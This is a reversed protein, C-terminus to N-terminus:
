IAASLSKWVGIAKAVHLSATGRLRDIYDVCLEAETGALVPVVSWGATSEMNDLTQRAAIRFGENPSGCAGIVDQMAREDRRTELAAAENWDADLQVRGQQLLVQTYHKREDFSDRSFDGRM